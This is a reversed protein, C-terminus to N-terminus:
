CRAKRAAFSSARDTGSPEDTSASRGCVLAVYRVFLDIAYAVLLLFFLVVPTFLQATWKTDFSIKVQCDPSVVDFNISFLSALNLLELIFPPWPYRVHANMSLIQLFTVAITVSTYDAFTGTRRAM